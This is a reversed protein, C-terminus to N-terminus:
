PHHSQCNDNPRHTWTDTHEASWSVREGRREGGCVCVCVRGAGAWQWRSRENILLRGVEGAGGASLNCYNGRVHVLGGGREGGREGGRQGACEPQLDSHQSMTVQRVLRCPSWAVSM